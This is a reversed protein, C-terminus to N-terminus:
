SSASRSGCHHGPEVEVQGRQPVRRDGVGAHRDGRWGPRAAAPRRRPPGPPSCGPRRAGTPGPRTRRRTRGPAAARRGAPRSWAWGASTGARCRRGSGRAPRRGLEARQHSPVELHARHEPQAGPRPQGGVLRRVAVQHGRLDGGRPSGSSASRARTAATVAASKTTSSWSRAPHRSRTSVATRRHAFGDPRQADDQVRVQRPQRPVAAPRDALLPQVLGPGAAVQRQQRHEVPQGGLPPPVQEGEADGRHQRRRQVVRVRQALVVAPQAAPLQAGLLQGAVAVRRQPRRRALLEPGRAPRELHELGPPHVAPRGHQPRQQVGAGDLQEAARHRVRDQRQQRRRDRRERQPGPEVVGRQPDAPPRGPDPQRLAGPRRLQRRHEPLGPHAVEQHVLRRHCRAAAAGVPRPPHGATVEDRHGAVQGEGVQDPRGPGAERAPRVVAVEVVHVGAPQPGRPHGVRGARLLLGVAGVGGRRGGPPVRGGEHSRDAVPQRASGPRSGTATTAQSM